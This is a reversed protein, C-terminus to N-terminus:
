TGAAFRRCASLKAPIDRGPEAVYVCPMNWMSFLVVTNM